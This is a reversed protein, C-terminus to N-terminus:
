RSESTLRRVRSNVTRILGYVAAISRAQAARVEDLAGRLPAWEGLLELPVDAVTKHVGEAATTVQDIADHITTALNKTAPM